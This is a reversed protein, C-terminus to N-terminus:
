SRASSTTADRCSRARCIGSARRHRAPAPQRRPVRSPRLLPGRNARHRAGVYRDRVAAACGAAAVADLLRKRVRGLGAGRSPARRSRSRHAPPLLQRPSRRAGRRAPVGRVRAMSGPFIQGMGHMFWDLESPRALFIGRLVLGLCREPHAEAYALALTSGWSGGFVCGASSASTGGCGSSITSSIRHRTTPSRPWRCRAAPAASTSCRSGGSLPISFAAITRCAAAAPGATCSCSRVGDPNGCTEWYLTHLRDVALGGNAYPEIEPFLTRNRPPPPTPRPMASACRTDRSSLARVAARLATRGRPPLSRLSRPDNMPGRPRGFPATRGRPPLSRLSRPPKMVRRPAADSGAQRSRRLHDHAAHRAACGGRRRVLRHHHDPRRHPGPELGSAPASVTRSGCWRACRIATRTGATARSLNRGAPGAIAIPFAELPRELAAEGGRPGVYLGYNNASDALMEPFPLTAPDAYRCGMLELVLRTEGIAARVDAETYPAKRPPLDRALVFAIEPEIRAGTDQPPVSCPSKTASRRRSSRRSSPRTRRPCRANGAASPSTSCRARRPAPDRARRRHREPRCSKPLRPGARGHRRAALLHLAAAEIASPTMPNGANHHATGARGDDVRALRTCSFAALSGFVRADPRPRCSAPARCGGGAVRHPLAPRLSSRGVRSVFPSCSIFSRRM